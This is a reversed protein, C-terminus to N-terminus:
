GVCMVTNGKKVLKKSFRNRLTPKKSIPKVDPVLLSNIVISDRKSNQNSTEIAKKVTEPM